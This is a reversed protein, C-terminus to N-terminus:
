ITVLDPDAQDADVGGLRDVRALGGLAEAV